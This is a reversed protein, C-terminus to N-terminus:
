GITWGSIQAKGSSWCSRGWLLLQAFTFVFLTYAFFHGSLCFTKWQCWRYSCSLSLRRKRRLLPLDTRYCFRPPCSKCRKLLDPSTCCCTLLTDRETKETTPLYFVCLFEIGFENARWFWAGGVIERREGDQGDEGLEAASGDMWPASLLPPAPRM